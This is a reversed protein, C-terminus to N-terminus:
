KKPVLIAASKAAVPVRLKGDNAALAPGAHEGLRIARVTAAWAFDTMGLEAMPTERVQLSSSKMLDVVHANPPFPSPLEITQDRTSNNIVVAVVQDNRTRKFAIVDNIDHVMLTQFLGTRLAPYTNRIAILRQFHALVDDSVVERPDDYPQLDKWLMPKRCTPDDAGYMGVENGYWIMPAGLFTM